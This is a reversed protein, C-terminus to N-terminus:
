SVFPIEELWPDLLRQVSEINAHESAMILLDGAHDYKDKDKSYHLYDALVGDDGRQVFASFQGTMPNFHYYGQPIDKRIEFRKAKSENLKVAKKAHEFTIGKKVEVCLAM